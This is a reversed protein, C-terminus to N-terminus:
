TESQEVKKKIYIGTLSILAIIFFAFALFMPLPLRYVYGVQMMAMTLIVIACWALYAKFTWPKMKWLGISTFLATVGYSLTVIPNLGSSVIFSGIFAAFALWIFILALITFGAPRKKDM